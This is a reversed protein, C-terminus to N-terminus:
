RTRFIKIRMARREKVGGRLVKEMTEPVEGGKKQYLGGGFGRKADLSKQSPKGRDGERIEVGNRRAAEKIYRQGKGGGKKELSSAGTSDV